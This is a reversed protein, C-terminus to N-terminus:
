LALMPLRKSVFYAWYLRDVDGSPTGLWNGGASVDIAALVWDAWLPMVIVLAVTVAFLGQSVTRDCRWSMLLTVTVILAALVGFVACMTQLTPIRESWTRGIIWVLAAFGAATAAAEPFVWWLTKKGWLRGSIDARMSEYSYRRGGKRAEVGSHIGIGVYSLSFVLKWVALLAFAASNCCRVLTIASTVLTGLLGLGSVFMDWGSKDLEVWPMLPRRCLIFCLISYFTLVHSLTGLGGYPLSYCKLSDTFSGSGPQPLIGDLLSGASVGLPASFIVFVVLFTRCLHAIFSM